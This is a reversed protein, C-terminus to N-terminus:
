VKPEAPPQIVPKLQYSECLLHAANRMIRRVDSWDKLMAELEKFEKQLEFPDKDANNEKAWWARYKAQWAELFPRLVDTLLRQIMVGLHEQEPSQIKGVPFKRMIGRCEQFFRYLSVFSEAYIEGAFDEAEKDKWKGVVAVRTIIEAYLEWACQRDQDDLDGGIKVFGLNVEFKGQKFTAM